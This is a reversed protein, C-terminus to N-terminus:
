NEKKEKSKGNRKERRNRMFRSFSKKEKHKEEKKSSVAMGFLVITVIISGIVKVDSLVKVWIGFKPFVKIVKGIVSDRKIPLDESNNADGKTFLEDDKEAVIRHTIIEDKNEFTIIEGAKVDKTIKVLIVDNIEITGSMSGTTVEFITFGFFNTYHKKFINIQFFNYSVIIVLFVIFITLINFVTKLIKEILKM